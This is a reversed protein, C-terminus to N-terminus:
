TSGSTTPWSAQLRRGRGQRRGTGPALWWMLRHFNNVGDVDPVHTWNARDKTVYFGKSVYMWEDASEFYSLLWVINAPDTASVAVEGGFFEPHPQLPQKSWTIGGDDSYFGRSAILRRTCTTSPM